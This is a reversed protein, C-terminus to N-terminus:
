QSPQLEPSPLPFVRLLEEFRKWSLRDKRSRRSLTRKWIARIQRFFCALSPRNCPVDYYRYHGKLVSVLWRHQERIPKHMRRHAEDRIEAIKRHLRKSQTKRKVMFRGDRSISCYHTFGLFDFTEPKGRGRNRRREAAFRGFEILRTKAQNLTLGFRELREALDARMQKADTESKFGMVFDDAFRVIVMPQRGRKCRWRGVWLDLVYHLFVNALIPSIPAGQPTGEEAAILEGSELVGVKLWREILRLLRKDAIRQALALLMKEHDISDFCKSLDADLVYNVPRNLLLQQLKDVAKRPSRGPRFGYSFDCFVPEFIITLLEAVARQVIKDELALIGLPRQSGDAKPIYQRRAPLPRYKGSQVREHLNAINADLNGKYQEVTLSDVGASAGPKLEGIARMLGDQSIHHMLATLKTNPDREIAQKVRELNPPLPRQSCQTEGQVQGPPTGEPRGREEM